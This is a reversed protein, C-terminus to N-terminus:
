AVAVTEVVMLEVMEEGQEGGGGEQGLGRPPGWVRGDMGVLVVGGGGDGGVGGKGRRWFGWYQGDSKGWGAEKRTRWQLAVREFGGETKTRRVKEM